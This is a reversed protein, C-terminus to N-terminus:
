ARSPGSPSWPSRRGDMKTKLYSSTSRRTTIWRSCRNRSSAPPVFVGAEFLQQAAVARHPADEPLLLAIEEETLMIPQRPRARSSVAVIASTKEDSLGLYEAGETLWAKDDLLERRMLKGGFIYTQHWPEGSALHGDQTWFIATVGSGTTLLFPLELLASLAARQEIPVLDERFELSRVNDHCALAGVLGDSALQVIFGDGEGNNVIYSYPLEWWSMEPHGIFAKLTADALAERIMGTYLQSATPRPLLMELLREGTEGTEAQFEDPAGFARTGDLSWGFLVGSVVRDVVGSQGANLGAIWRGAIEINDMKSVKDGEGPQM